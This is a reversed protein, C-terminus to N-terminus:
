LERSERENRKDAERQVNEKDIIINRGCVFNSIVMVFLSLIEVMSVVSIGLWLGAHGSIDSILSVLTYSAGQTYSNVQLEEYFVHLLLANRHYWAICEDASKFNKNAYECSGFQPPLNFPLSSLMSWGRTRRCYGGREKEKRIECPSIGAGISRLFDKDLLPNTQDLLSSLNSSSPTTSCEHSLWCDNYAQIDPFSSYCTSKASPNTGSEWDTINPVAVGTPIFDFADFFMSCLHNTFGANNKVTCVQYDTYSCPWPMSASTDSYLICSKCRKSSLCPWGQIVTFVPNNYIDSYTARCALTTAELSNTI